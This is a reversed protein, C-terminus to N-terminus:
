PLLTECVQAWGGEPPRWDRLVFIGFRLDYEAGGVRNGAFLVRGADSERRWAAALAPSACADYFDPPTLIDAIIPAPATLRKVCEEVLVETEPRPVLVAPGVDIELGFFERHGLSYALPERASRRDLTADFAELEGETLVRKPHAILDLRSCHLVHALILQADLLPSAVGARVLRTAARNLATSATTM